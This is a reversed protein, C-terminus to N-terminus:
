PSQFPWYTTPFNDPIAVMNITQGSLNTIRLYVANAAIPMGANHLGLADIYLDQVGTSAAAVATNLKVLPELVPYDIGADDTLQAEISGTANQPVYFSLGALSLQIIASADPAPGAPNLIGALSAGWTLPIEISALNAIANQAGLGLIGVPDVATPPQLVPGPVADITITNGAVSVSAANVADLTINGTLTSGDATISRVASLPPTAIVAPTGTLIFAAM